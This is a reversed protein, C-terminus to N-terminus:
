AQARGREVGEYLREMGRTAAALERNLTELQRQQQRGSDKAQRALAELMLRERAATFVRDALTLVMADLKQMPLNDSQCYDSAGLRVAFGVLIVGDYLAGALTAWAADSVLAHKGRVLDEPTVFSDPRLRM